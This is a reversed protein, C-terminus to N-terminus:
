RARPDLRPLFGPEEKGRPLPFQRGVIIALELVREPQVVELAAGPLTPAV